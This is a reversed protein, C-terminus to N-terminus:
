LGRRQWVVPQECDGCIPIDNKECKQCYWFHDDRHRIAFAEGFSEKCYLCMPDCQRDFSVECVWDGPLSCELDLHSIIAVSLGPSHELIALFRPKQRLYRLNWICADVMMKRLQDNRAATGTDVAQFADMFDVISGDANEKWLDTESQLMRKLSKYVAFKLGQIQYKEAVVYVKAHPQLLHRRGAFPEDFPLGYIYRLLAVM